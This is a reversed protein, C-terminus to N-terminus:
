PLEAPSHRTQRHLAWAMLALALTGALLIGWLLLSRSPLGDSAPQAAVLPGAAAVAGDIRAVDAQAAALTNEQMPQYGPILSALPLYPSLLKGDGALGVALTFPGQGSALFIIQAPEFQLAIDPAEAFGATKKDAEIRIERMPGSRLEVPANVQDGVQGSAAPALRYVVASALVAWPQNRDNRGLVRVPVLVNSAQPTIKLAAVPTAFPLTFGLEHANALAPRAMSASVRQRMGARSTALTAGRLTVAADGWSVRLYQGELNTLGLDLTNNGLEAAPIASGGPEAARYLVTSALPRWTRLDKSAQVSFTVPQGAPLEVDLTMSAAPAAVARADLLAGLVRQAPSSSSTLNGASDGVTSSSGPPTNIQVVRRGQREEIRLSLGELGGIGLGTSAGLIPYAPLLVQQQASRGPVDTGALAMPVAQGQANFIRVDAYGSTQLRVLAEAPLPLRQLPAGAALTLPIRVAYSTPNGAANVDDANAALALLPVAVSSLVLSRLLQSRGSM